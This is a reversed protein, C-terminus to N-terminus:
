QLYTLRDAAVLTCQQGSLNIVGITFSNAALTRMSFALLYELFKQLRKTYNIAM